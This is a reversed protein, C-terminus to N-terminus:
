DLGNWHSYAWWEDRVHDMHLGPANPREGTCYAFGGREDLRHDTEVFVCGERRVVRLVDFSGASTGPTTTRGREFGLVVAYLEDRSGDFRRKLLTEDALLAFLAAVVIPLPLLAALLALLSKHQRRYVIALVVVVVWAAGLWLLIAFAFSASLTDILPSDLMSAVWLFYLISVVLMVAAIVLAVAM